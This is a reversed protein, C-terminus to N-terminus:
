RAAHAEEAILPVVPFAEITQPHRPVRGNRGGGRVESARIALLRPIKGGQAQIADMCVGLFEELTQDGKADYLGELIKRLPIGFRVESIGAFAWVPHQTTGNGAAPVAAADKTSDVAADEKNVVKQPKESGYIPKEPEYIPKEGGSSVANQLKEESRKWIGFKRSNLVEIVYGYPTRRRRIYNERVLHTLHRRVTEKNSGKLGSVIAGLKIPAGGFVLGVGDREETIKDICWVFEWLAQGIREFHEFVGNWLPIPHSEKEGYKRGHQTV